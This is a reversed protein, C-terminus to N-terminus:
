NVFTGFYTFIHYELRTHANVTSHGDLGVSMDIVAGNEPRRRLVELIRTFRSAKFNAFIANDTFIDREIAARHLPAATRAKSGADQDHRIRMHAVVALNALPRNNRVSALQATMHAHPLERRNAASRRHLLTVLYAGVSKDTARELDIVINGRAAASKSVRETKGGEIEMRETEM